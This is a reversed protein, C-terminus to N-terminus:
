LHHFQNLIRFNTLMFDGFFYNVHSPDETDQDGEAFAGFEDDEQNVAEEEDGSELQDADIEPADVELKSDDEEEINENESLMLEENNDESEESESPLVDKPRKNSKTPRNKSVM